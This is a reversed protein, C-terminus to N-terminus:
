GTKQIGAQKPKLRPKIIDAYVAIAPILFASVCLIILINTVKASDLLHTYWKEDKKRSSPSYSDHISAPLKLIVAVFLVAACYCIGLSGIPKLSEM